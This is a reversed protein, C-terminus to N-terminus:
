QHTTTLLDSDKVPSIMAMIKGRNTVYYTKGSKVSEMIQRTRTRLDM